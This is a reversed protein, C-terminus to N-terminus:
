SHIIDLFAQKTLNVLTCRYGNDHEWKELTWFTLGHCSFVRVINVKTTDKSMAQNTFEGDYNDDAWVGIPKVHIHQNMPCITDLYDSLEASAPFSHIQKM